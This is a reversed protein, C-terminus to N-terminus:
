KGIINKVMNVDISNVIGDFNFDVKKDGSGVANKVISFDISNVFGDQNLDYSVPTSSPISVSTPTLVRTPTPILTLTPIKQLTPTLTPTLTKTPALSRGGFKQILLNRGNQNLTMTDKTNFSWVRKINEFSFTEINAYGVNSNRYMIGWYSNMPTKYSWPTFSIGNKLYLDFAYACAEWYDYCSTEGVYVPIKYIKIIELHKKIVEDFYTKIKQGTLNQKDPLYDHISYFVNTWKKNLGFDALEPIEWFTEMIIIRNSDVSRIEKYIWDYLNWINNHNSEASGGYTENLLDFGAVSPNGSFHRAIEKWLKVTLTRNNKGEPTQAFLTPKDTQLGSAHSGSQSGPAGHLDLIVYIGRKGCESVLWDFRSFDIEGNKYIFTGDENMFNRWWFPVRVVNAGTKAIEDLDDTTLYNDFYVNFLEKTKDEGFRNKLTNLVYTQDVIKGGASVPSMYVTQLLWGGINLGKLVVTQGGTKKVIKSGNTILFDKNTIATSALSNDTAKSRNDQKEKITKTVLILVIVLILILFLGWLVKRNKIFM